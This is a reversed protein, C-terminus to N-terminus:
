AHATVPHYAELSALVAAYVEPASISDMCACRGAGPSLCETCQAPKGSPTFITKRSTYPGWRAASLPTIQPYFGIVPTGVAAAMHLPGTSNAIFLSARKALAAFQHLTLEGAIGLVGEGGTRRVADVLGQENSGGTIAVRVSPIRRIMAALEGFHDAHWDRASSGSGPHLIVLREGDAVGLSALLRRVHEESEATVRISPSVSSPDVTCGIAQLLNLNYELEHRRADKRHEYVKRNFLWSYWRYGTGVRERIGAFRTALAARFLPHTHFVADFQGARLNAVLQFFPIQRTGDDYLLIRDVYPSEEVVESTYRRILMAVSTEPLLRKLAQAM